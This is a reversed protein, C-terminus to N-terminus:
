YETISILPYKECCIIYLCIVARKQLWQYSSLALPPRVNTLKQKLFKQIYLYIFLHIFVHFLIFHIFESACMVVDLWHM